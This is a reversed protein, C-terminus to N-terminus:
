QVISSFESIAVCDSKLIRPLIQYRLYSRYEKGKMNLKSTVPNGTMTLHELKPCGLGINEIEHLGSIRNHSLDLNVVNPANKELNRGDISEISNGSLLLNSLRNLRPLNDLRILSNDTFDITDFLDRTAGLNEIAPIALGRLVIEREGLTNSRQESQAIVDATLRM